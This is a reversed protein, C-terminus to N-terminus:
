LQSYLIWKLDPSVSVSEDRGDEFGEQLPLISRTRKSSFQYARLMGPQGQGPREAFIIEDPTLTWGRQLVNNSPGLVLEEGASLPGASQIPIRWINDSRHKSFYLWKGDRSARSAYGGKLTVQVAQGGSIAQKWVEWGGTRDSAFYLSKGDASWSPVEARSGSIVRKPNGCQMSAADCDLIFIDSHGQDRAYFALRDGEPSWQLGGVDPGNFNTVRKQGAGDALALWIERSGSRDSVFAIQGNSSYAGDQDRLTSAILKVPPEGGAARIRYIDVDQTQNVWTLRKTKWNVDPTIADVGGQIIREPRSNPALPFRWLGFITTGRQCSVILSKGDATWAHGWVGRREWTIRRPEGGAVPVTYVDDSWFGGVRRFAISRGDPSFKPNYDGFDEPPPSTLKRTQGTRLNLLYVALLESEPVKESFALQLGDPSWDILTSLYPNKVDLIKKEKGGSSPIAFLAGSSVKYERKFAIWKGDPSWALPGIIGESHSDTLKVPGSDNLQKVYLQPPIDLRETWTFAISKGDPSFAPSAEWGAQSTLPQIRLNAFQPSDQRAFVFWGAFVIAVLSTVLAALWFRRRPAPQPRQMKDLQRAVEAASPRTAPDKALMALILSNLAAPVRSDVSSPAPADQTLTARLADLPSEDAFARRGTALEFLALGFSFVDSAPKLPGGTAQEPSMYRLTGFVPGHSATTTEIALRRALGFDLVKVYGDDRLMINEPKIDGHIIGNSHAAALAKAVQAGISRIEDVPLSAGRFKALSSGRVLEMVIASCHEHLVVEHITVINPHNLASAARAERVIQASDLESATEARLFKLAVFRDLETDRASWVEGIGGRGLLELMIFREFRQNPRVANPFSARARPDFLPKSLFSGASEHEQLLEEVAKRLLTQSGCAQDLLTVRQDGSKELAAHFIDVVENWESPGM